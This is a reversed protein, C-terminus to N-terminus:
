AAEVAVGAEVALGAAPRRAAVHTDPETPPHAPAPTPASEAGAPAPAALGCTDCYPQAGGMDEYTGECGPRLCPAPPETM